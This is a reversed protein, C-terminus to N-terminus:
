YNPSLILILGKGKRGSQFLPINVTGNAPVPIKSINTGGYNECASSCIGTIPASAAGTSTITIGIGPKYTAKTNGSFFAMRDELKKGLDSQNFSLVPLGSIKQFKTFVAELTDTLLSKGGGYNILNSQHYMTPYLEGRLM